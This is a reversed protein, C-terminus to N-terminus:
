RTPPESPPEFAEVWNRPTLSPDLMHLGRLLALSAQIQAVTVPNSSIKADSMNKEVHVILDRLQKRFQWHFPDEIEAAELGRRLQDYNDLIFRSHVLEWYRLRLAQERLFLLRKRAILDQFNSRNLLVTALRFFDEVIDGFGIHEADLCDYQGLGNSVFEVFEPEKTKLLEVLEATTRRNYQQREPDYAQEIQHRLNEKVTNDSKQEAPGRVCRFGITGHASGPPMAHRASTNEISPYGTAGRLVRGLAQKCKIAGHCPGRPNKEPNKFRNPGRGFWDATWEFIGHGLFTDQTIVSMYHKAAFEWEAEAPLRKGIARCYTDAEFWTTCNISSTNGVGFTCARAKLAPPKCEGSAVCAKYEFARVATMDIDFADLCVRHKPMTGRCLNGDGACGMEFCGADIHLMWPTPETAIALLSFSAAIFIGAM